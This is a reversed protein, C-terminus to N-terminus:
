GTAIAEADGNVLHAVDLLLALGSALRAVGTANSDELIDTVRVDHDIMDEHIIVTGTVVNVVLGVQRGNHSLAVVRSDRSYDAAPLGLRRRRDIVPTAMGRLDIVGVCGDPMGPAATVRPPRVIEKVAHVFHDSSLRAVVVQGVM